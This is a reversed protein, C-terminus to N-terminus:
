RSLRASNSQMSNHQVVYYLARGKSNSRPQQPRCSRSSAYTLLDYGNTCIRLLTALQDTGCVDQLSELM